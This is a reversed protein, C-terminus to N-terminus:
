RLDSRGGAAAAAERLEIMPVLVIRLPPSGSPRVPPRVICWVHDVSRVRDDAALVRWGDRLIGIATPHYAYTCGAYPGGTAVGSGDLLALTAPLRGTAAQCAGLDDALARLEVPAGAEPWPSELEAKGSRHETVCGALLLVATALALRHM